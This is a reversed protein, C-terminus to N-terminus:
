DPRGAPSDDHPTSATRMREWASRVAPQAERWELPSGGRADGWGAELPGAVEEWHQAGAHRTSGEAGYRYAPEYDAYSRGDSAYPQAAHHAQWAEDELPAGAPRGAGGGMAAGTAAGVVAGALSGVPGAALGGVAGAALGAVAGGVTGAPHEGLAKKAAQLVGSSGSTNKGGHDKATDM